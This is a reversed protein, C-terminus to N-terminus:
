EYSRLMALALRGARDLAEADVHDITDRKTHKCCQDLGTWLWVANLGKAQFSGNDSWSPTEREYARIGAVRAVTLCRRTAQTRRTV